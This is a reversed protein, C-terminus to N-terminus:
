QYDGELTNFGQYKDLHISEREFSPTPFSQGSEEKVWEFLWKSSLVYENQIKFLSVM